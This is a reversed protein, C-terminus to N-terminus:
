PLVLGRDEYLLGWGFIDWPKSADNNEFRLRFVQGNVPPEVKLHTIGYEMGTSLPVTYTQKYLGTDAKLTVTLDTGDPSHLLYIRNIAKVKQVGGLAFDKTEYFANIAKGDDSGGSYLEYVFGGTTQTSGAMMLKQDVVNLMRPQVGKWLVWAGSTDMVYIVDNFTGSSTQAGYHYRNKFVAASASKASSGETWNIVISDTKNSESASNLSYTAVVVAYAGTTLSIADGSNIDEKTVPCTTCSSIQLEYEITADGTITDEVQFIGLGEDAIDNSLFIQESTYTGSSAGSVTMLALHPTETPIRTQFTTVTRLYQRQEAVISVDLAQSALAEFGGGDNATSAQVQYTIPKLATSSQTVTLPGWTPHDQASDFIPSTLTGTGHYVYAHVEDVFNRLTIPTTLFYLGLQMGTSTIISNDTAEVILDGELDVRMYGDMNRQVIFERVSSQTYTSIDSTALVTEAGDDRILEIVKGVSSPTGDNRLRMSYFSGTSNNVFRFDMCIGSASGNCRDGTASDTYRHTISWQGTTSNFETTEIFSVANSSDANLEDGSIQMGGSILAWAPNATFDGDEFNDDFTASSLQVQGAVSVTTVLVPTGPTFDDQSDYTRATYSSQMFGGDRTASLERADFSGAEWQAQTDITQRGAFSSFNGLGDISGRLKQSFEKVFIGDTGYIGPQGGNPGLSDFLQFGEFNQISRHNKAGITMSVPVLVWNKPKDGKLAWTSFKKYVTLLGFKSPGIGTIVDGDDAQVDVFDTAVTWSECNGLASWYLRSPNTDNGAAFCYNRHVRIYDLNAPNASFVDDDTGNFFFNYQNNVCFLSDNYAACNVDNDRTLTDVFVTFTQCGDTSYYGNTSSFAVCYKTGGTQEIQYVANVDDDGGDGLATANRKTYGERRSVGGNKDLLVDRLDPSETEGLIAANNRTNLGGGFGPSGMNGAHAGGAGLLLWASLLTTTLNM